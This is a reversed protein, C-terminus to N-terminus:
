KASIVERIFAELTVRSSVPVVDSMEDSVPLWGNYLSLPEAAEPHDEDENDQDPAAGFSKVLPAESISKM